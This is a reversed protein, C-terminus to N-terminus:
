LIERLQEPTRAFTGADPGTSDELKYHCEYIQPKYKYYLSWNCTHDSINRMDFGEAVINYEEITAPYKSVCAMNHISSDLYYPCHEMDNRNSLADFSRIVKTKRPMEGILSYLDPRNAIKIFPVEFQQLFRLSYIDFVSATTKYGYEKKAYEYLMEFIDWTLPINEGAKKFLQWKIICKRDKDVAALEDIMRTGYNFNNKCTNGSGFDLIIM